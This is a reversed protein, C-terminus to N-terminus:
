NFVTSKIKPNDHSFNYYIKDASFKMKMSKKATQTTVPPSTLTPVFPIPTLQEDMQCRKLILFERRLRPFVLFLSFTRYKETGFVTEQWFRAQKSAMEALNAMNSFTQSSSIKPCCSNKKPGCLKYIGTLHINCYIILKNNYNAFHFNHHSKKKLVYLHLNLLM